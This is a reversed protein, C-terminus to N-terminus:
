PYLRNHVCFSRLSARHSAEANDRKQGAVSTQLARHPSTIASTPLPPLVRLPLALGFLSAM